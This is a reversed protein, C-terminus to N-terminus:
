GGVPAVMRVEDVLTIVGVEVCLVGFMSAKMAAPADTKTRITAAVIVIMAIRIM